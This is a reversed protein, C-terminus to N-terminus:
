GSELGLFICQGLIFFPSAIVRHGTFCHMPRMEQPSAFVPWLLVRRDDGSSALITGEGGSLSLANVCGHHGRLNYQHTFKPHRYHESLSAHGDLSLRDILEM